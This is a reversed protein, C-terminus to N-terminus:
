KRHGCEVRLCIAKSSPSCGQVKGRFSPLKGLIADETSKIGKDECFFVEVEDKLDLGAGKRLQQVHNIKNNQWFFPRM